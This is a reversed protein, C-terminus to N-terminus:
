TGSTIRSRSVAKPKIEEERLELFDHGQCDAILVQETFDMCLYPVSIYPAQDPNKEEEKVKHGYGVSM